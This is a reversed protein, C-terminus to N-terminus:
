YIGYFLRISNDNNNNNKINYPTIRLKNNKYCFLILNDDYDVM